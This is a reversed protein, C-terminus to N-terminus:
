YYKMTHMKKEWTELKELKRFYYEKFTYPKM